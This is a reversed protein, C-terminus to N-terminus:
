FLRAYVCCIIERARARETRAHPRAHTHTHTQTHTHTHTNPPPPPPPIHLYFHTQAHRFSTGSNKGTCQFSSLFCTNFLSCMDPKSFLSIFAGWKVELSQSILVFSAVLQTFFFFFFLSFFLLSTVNPLLHHNFVSILSPLIHDNFVTLFSAQCCTTISSLSFHPRAVHHNFVTLFSAHCGTISSLSFHSRAVRSISSSSFHSRAVHSQFCHSTISAAHLSQLRHSFLNQCCTTLSQLCHFIFLGKSSAVSPSYFCLSSLSPLMHHNFVIVFSVQCCTISSSSVSTLGPLM